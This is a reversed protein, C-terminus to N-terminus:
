ICGGLSKHNKKHRLVPCIAAKSYGSKAAAEQLSNYEHM